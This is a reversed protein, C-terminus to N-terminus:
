MLRTDFIRCPEVPTFTLDKDVDGLRMPAISGTREREQLQDLTELQLARILAARYDASFERGPSEKAAVLTEALKARLSFDEPIASAVASSVEVPLKRLGSDRNVTQAPLERAICLTILLASIRVARKM